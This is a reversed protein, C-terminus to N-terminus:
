TVEFLRQVAGKREGTLASMFIRRQLVQQEAQRVVRIRRRHQTGTPDIQVLQAAIQRLKEVLVQCAQRGVPSAIRLGGGAELAHHLPRRDM